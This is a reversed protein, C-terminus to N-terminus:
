GHRIIDRWKYKVSLTTADYIAIYASELAGRTTTNGSIERYHKIASWYIPATNSKRRRASLAM